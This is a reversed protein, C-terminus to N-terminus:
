ENSEGAASIILKIFSESLYFGAQSQLKHLTTTVSKITGNKKAQLLVGVIGVPTLGLAAARQRGEREDMLIQTEEQEIALVIAEAEGADIELRLLRVMPDNHVPHVQIWGKDLANQILDAGPYKEALKFESLVTPPIILQEFQQQLLHLQDIAALNLIPSTNSVMPM